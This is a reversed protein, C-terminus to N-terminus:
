PEDITWLNQTTKLERQLDSIQMANSPCVTGHTGGSTHLTLSSTLPGSAFTDEGMTWIRTGAPGAAGRVKGALHIPVLRSHLATLDARSRFVSMGKNNLVVNGSAHVDVDAVAPLGNPKTRGPPRVGLECFNDGVRPRGAQEYM